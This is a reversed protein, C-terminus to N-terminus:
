LFISAAIWRLLFDSQFCGNTRRLNPAPACRIKLVVDLSLNSYFPPFFSWPTSYRHIYIYIYIHDMDQRSSRSSFQFHSTPLFSSEKINCFSARIFAHENPINSNNSWGRAKKAAGARWGVGASPGYALSNLSQNGAYTFYQDPGTLVFWFEVSPDDVHSDDKEIRLAVSSDSKLSSRLDPDQPHRFSLSCFAPNTVHRLSDHCQYFRTWTLRSIPEFILESSTTCSGIYHARQSVHWHRNVVTLSIKSGRLDYSQQTELLDTRRHLGYSCHLPDALTCSFVTGSM